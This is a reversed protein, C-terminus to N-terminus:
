REVRVPAAGGDGHCSNCSGSTVPTEMTHTVGNSSVAVRAPFSVPEATYFNGAGNALLQTVVGHADTLTVAATAAGATGSAGRFVTGAVTWSRVEAPGGQQHCGNCDSGPYMWPGNQPPECALGLLAVPLM